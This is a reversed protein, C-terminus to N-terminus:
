TAKGDSAQFASCLGDNTCIYDVKGLPVFYSHQRNIVRLTGEEVFIPIGSILRGGVCLDVEVLEWWARFHLLGCPDACNHNKKDAAEALQAAAHTLRTVADMMQEKAPSVTDCGDAGPDAKQQLPLGGGQAGEGAGAKERLHPIAAKRTGRADPAAVHFDEQFLSQGDAQTSASNEAEPSGLNLVAASEPAAAADPIALARQPEAQGQVAGPVPMEVQMCVPDESRVNRCYFYGATQYPPKHHFYRTSHYTCM